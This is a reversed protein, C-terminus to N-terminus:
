RRPMGCAWRPAAFSRRLRLDGERRTRRASPVGLGSGRLWRLHGSRPLLPVPPAARDAVTTRFPATTRPRAGPTSSRPVYVGGTGMTRAGAAVETAAM